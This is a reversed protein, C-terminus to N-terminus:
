RALWTGGIMRVIVEIVTQEVRTLNILFLLSLIGSTTLLVM